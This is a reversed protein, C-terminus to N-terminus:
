RRGRLYGGRIWESMDGELLGVLLDNISTLDSFAAGFSLHGRQGIAARGFGISVLFPFQCRGTGGFQSGYIRTSNIVTAIGLLLVLFINGPLMQVWPFQLNAPVNRMVSHQNIKYYNFRVDCSMAIEM